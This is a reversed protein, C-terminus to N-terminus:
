VQKDTEPSALRGEPPRLRFVLEEGDGWERGPNADFGHLWLGDGDSDLGFVCPYDDRDTIPKMGIVIEQTPNQLRFNPGTEAPCLELGLEKAKAFIEDTTRNKTKLDSVRLRILIEKETIKSTIFDSSNLMDQAYDSININQKKMEAELEKKSKGGIEINYRRIKGEPFETYVHETQLTQFINPFLEGVYAKTNENIEKQNHAIQDSTCDFIILMDQEPNRQSRIEKIRPDTKYGFGQIPSDIEYLFTLEDKNLEENNQTKKDIQTLFKMDASKKIYKEAGPFENMKKQAIDVMNGELNQDNDAVGRVEGIDNGQMRIAIRPITPKGQKDLTYYVYFDGGKLQTQATGFGKTCWATGKNQLSAWLATPDTDKQYKKWEGRTEQRMEPTIEGSQKIGEAYQKAFSLKAFNAVKEKTILQDEPISDQAAAKQAKRLKEFIEPDKDAEIMQEVYALAGRDIDPFLRVTGPSRKTFEGKDKDYDGLDLINRFAYYRFWMPYPENADSLYSIWGDLSKEVDAVAIEGREALEEQGYQADIGLTRAAREEVRAASEAMKEKNPRVYKDMVMERLLSMARPRSEGGITKKKQKKEPDLVLSELRDLYN